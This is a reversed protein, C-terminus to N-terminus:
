RPTSPKMCEPTTRAGGALMASGRRLAHGPHQLCPHASPASGCAGSSLASAHAPCCRNFRLHLHTVIALETKSPEARVTLKLAKTRAPPSPHAKGLHAPICDQPLVAAHPSSVSHLRVDQIAEPRRDPQWGQAAAAVRMCCFLVLYAQGFPPWATKQSWSQAQLGQAHAAEGPTRSCSRQYRSQRV